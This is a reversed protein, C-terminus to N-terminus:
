GYIDIEHVGNILFITVGEADKSKMIEHLAGPPLLSFVTTRHHLVVRIYMFTRARHRICRKVAIVKMFSMFLPTGM